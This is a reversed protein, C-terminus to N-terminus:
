VPGGGAAGAGGPAGGRGGRGGGRPPRRRGPNRHVVRGVVAPLAGRPRLARAVGGGRRCRAAWCASPLRRPPTATRRGRSPETRASDPRATDPGCGGPEVNLIM